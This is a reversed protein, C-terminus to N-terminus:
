AQARARVELMLHHGIHETYTPPVSESLEHLTVDWDIGM